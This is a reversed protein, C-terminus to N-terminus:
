QQVHVPEQTAPYESMAAELQNELDKYRLELSAYKSRWEPTDQNHMMEMRSLRDGVVELRANLNDIRKELENRM